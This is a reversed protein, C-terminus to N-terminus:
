VGTMVWRQSINRVDCVGRITVATIWEIHGQDFRFRLYFPDHPRGLPIWGVRERQAATELDGTRGHEFMRVVISRDAVQVQPAALLVQGELLGNANIRSLAVMHSKPARILEIRIATWHPDPRSNEILPNAEAMGRALDRMM